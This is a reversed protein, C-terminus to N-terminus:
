HLLNPTYIQALGVSFVDSHGIALGPLVFVALLGQRLRLFAMEAPHCWPCAHSWPCPPSCFTPSLSWPLLPAPPLPSVSPLAPPARPSLPAPASVTPLASGCVPSPASCFYSPASPSKQEPLIALIPWESILPLPVSLLSALDRAAFVFLPAACPSGHPCRRWWRARSPAPVAQWPGRPSGRAPLALRRRGLYPARPRRWCGCGWACRVCRVAASSGPASTVKGWPAPACLPLARRLVQQVCGPLTPPLCLAYGSNSVSTAWRM